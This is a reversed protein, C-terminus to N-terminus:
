VGRRAVEDRVQVLAFEVAEARRLFLAEPEVRAIALDRLYDAFVAAAILREVEVRVVEAGRFRDAVVVARRPVLVEVREAGRSVRRAGLERADAECPL